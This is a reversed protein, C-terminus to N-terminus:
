QAKYFIYDAQYNVIEKKGMAAADCTSAPAVGGKTAVRQIYTVGVASGSGTAPNAKVLQLPISGAAAPSVAVQAGTVKSGDAMSWTAPPGYYTGVQSGARNNLKADPGVFVWAHGDNTKKAQCEYTIQGVGVTEMAVMNGDPVLVAAPMGTQSFAPAPAPAQTACGALVVLPLALAFMSKKMSKKM